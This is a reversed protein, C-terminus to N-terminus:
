PRGGGPVRGAGAAPGQERECPPRLLVLWLRDWAARRAALLPDPGDPPAVRSRPAM